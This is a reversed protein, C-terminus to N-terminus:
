NTLIGDCSSLPPNLFAHYRIQANSRDCIAISFDDCILRITQFDNIKLNSGRM